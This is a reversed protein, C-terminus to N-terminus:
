NKPVSVMESKRTSYLGILEIWGPGPTLLEGDEEPRAKASTDMPTGSGSLDVSAAGTTHMLELKDSRTRTSTHRPELRLEEIRRGRSEGSPHGHSSSSEKAQLGVASKRIIAAGVSSSPETVQQNEM